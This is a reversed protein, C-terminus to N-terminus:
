KIISLGIMNVKDTSNAPIVTADIVIDGKQLINESILHEKFLKLHNSSLYNEIFHPSIGWVLNLKKLVDLRSSFIHVPSHPRHASIRIASYGSNATGIIASANTEHALDVASFLISDTIYDISKNNLVPKSRSPIDESNEVTHIIKSMTRVTEVPYKGVSTEGSLMVADAGDFVANAVDNVEARTPFINEIMGEMMQTAVIVPKGARICKNIIQKQLVPLQEIPIEIGLDGRAVMLADSAEIIQDINQIAEPKEIKAIIGPIFEPNMSKIIQKLHSIDDASRVFSLAVWQIRNKLIFELDAIDKNTLSPLKIATEPLNVGKRSKLIGDNLAQIRVTDIKNTEVIMFQLKGDDVLIKQGAEVDFAFGQYNIGVVNENGPTSLSTSVTLIDLKKIEFQGNEIESIRIKPGGLDALMSIFMGKELNLNNIINITNSHESNSGHSFNLRFVDAGENMLENLIQKSASAPGITAIIKTKVPVLHQNNFIKEM